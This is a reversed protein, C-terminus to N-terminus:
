ADWTAGRRGVEKKWGQKGTREEAEKNVRAEALAGTPGTAPATIVM